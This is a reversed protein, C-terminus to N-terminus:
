EGENMMNEEEEVKPESQTISDDNGDPNSDADDFLIQRLEELQDKSLKRMEALISQSNKEVKQKEEEIDSAMRAIIDRSNLVPKKDM